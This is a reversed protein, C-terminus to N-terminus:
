WGRWKFDELMDRTSQEMSILEEKPIGLVREAKSTDFDLLHVASSADYSPAGPSIAFAPYPAPSLSRAANLWDQWKFPGTSVIIRGVAEARQIARVHAKAVDRVDSWTNGQTTLATADKASGLVAAHWEVMSANSSSPSSVENIIPGFIYPPAITVLDWNVSSKHTEYFEFAAAAVPLSLYNVDLLNSANRGQEKVIAIAEDNWDSEAFIIPKDTSRVVAATSTTIVIRKVDTGRKLASQLIGITGKVAPQIIDDPDDANWHYPSAMHEIADVGQVADDFAGDKEIDPIVVLELKNGHSKFMHKLYEGKSATRVTGRVAFGEQLLTRVLWNAVFGNAGTVLVKSGPLVAPM